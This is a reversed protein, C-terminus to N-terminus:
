RTLDGPPPNERRQVCRECEFEVSYVTGYDGFEPIQRATAVNVFRSCTVCQPPPGTYKAAPEDAFLDRREM